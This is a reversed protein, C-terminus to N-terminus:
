PKGAMGCYGPRVYVMDDNVMRSERPLWRWAMCEAGLCAFKRAENSTLNMTIMQAPCFKNSAEEETHM